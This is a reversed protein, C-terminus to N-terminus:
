GFHVKRYRDLVTIAAQPIGGGVGPFIEYEYTRQLMMERKIAPDRERSFRAAQVMAIAAGELSQPLTRGSASDPLVWGATYTVVKTTYTSWGIEVAPNGSLRRLVGSSSVEYETRDLTTGNEVVSTISTVPWRALVLSSMRQTDVPCRIRGNWYGRFTEELTEQGITRTGDAARKVNLYECIQDTIEAIKLALYDDDDTGIVKIEAKVADVTTLNTFEAPTVVTLM